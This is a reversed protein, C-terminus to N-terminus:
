LWGSAWGLYSVPAAFLVSDLIDLVGGLGRLWGSSDKQNVDRKLLSEGLDGLLGALALLIGFAVYTLRGGRPSNPLLWPLLLDRILWAVLMAAVIGGCVGEVTKKPSVVSFHHRGLSRGVFFAGTDSLKVILLTALLAVLGRRGPPILRLQILCGLMVGLYSAILMGGALRALTEGPVQYRILEATFLVAVALLLGFLTWGIAPLPATEPAHSWALPMLSMLLVGAAAVLNAAASTPLKALRLLQNLEHAAAVGILVALPCLWIGPRGGNWQDDLWIIGLLPFVIAAAGLLRWGLM